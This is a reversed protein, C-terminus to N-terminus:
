SRPTNKNQKKRWKVLLVSHFLRRQHFNPYFNVFKADTFISMSLVDKLLFPVTTTQVDSCIEQELNHSVSCVHDAPKDWGWGM